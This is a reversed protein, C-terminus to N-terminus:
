SIVGYEIRGLLDEVERTGAETAMVELPTRNNLGIQPSQLWERARDEDELVEHALAFINALRYLRDGVTTPLCSGAKRMRSMTKASIGLVSSAEIDALNFAEKVRKIAGIPLGREINNAIDLRNSVKSKLGLLQCVEENM